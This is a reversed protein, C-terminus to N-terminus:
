HMIHLYIYKQLEIEVVEYGANEIAKKIEEDEVEKEMSVVATKRKLNVKASVGDLENLRSEVRAKCHECTMGEIIVTRQKVVQKLKKRKVKVSSGGGCCGGEGKFHKITSSIGIIILIVLIVIIIVDAM